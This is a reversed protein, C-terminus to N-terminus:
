LLSVRVLAKMRGTMTKATVKTSESTMATAASTLPVVLVLMKEAGVKTPPATMEIRIRADCQIGAM